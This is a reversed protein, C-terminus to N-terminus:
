LNVEKKGIIIKSLNNDPLGIKVKKGMGAARLPKPAAAISFLLTM